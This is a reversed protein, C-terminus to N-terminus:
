CAFLIRFCNIEKPLYYFKQLIDLELPPKVGFVWRQRRGQEMTGGELSLNSNAVFYVNAQNVSDHDEEPWRVNKVLHGRM